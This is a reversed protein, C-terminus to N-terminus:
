EVGWLTALTIATIGATWVGARRWLWRALVALTLALLIPNSAAAVATVADPWARGGLFHVPAALALLWWAFSASWHSERGAPLNDASQHRNRLDGAAVQHQM